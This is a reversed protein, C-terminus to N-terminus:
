FVKACSSGKDLTYPNDILSRLELGVRGSEFTGRYNGEDFASIFAKIELDMMGLRTGAYHYVLLSNSDDRAEDVTMLDLGIAALTLACGCNNEIAAFGPRLKLGLRKAKEIGEIMKVKDIM